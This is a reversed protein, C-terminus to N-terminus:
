SEGRNAASAGNGNKLVHLRVLPDLDDLTPKGM